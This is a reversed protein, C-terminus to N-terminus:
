SSLRFVAIESLHERITAVPADTPFPWMSSPRGLRSLYAAVAQAAAGDETLTATQREPEDGEM